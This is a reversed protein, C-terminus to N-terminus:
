LLRVFLSVFDSVRMFWCVYVEAEQKRGLMKMFGGGKRPQVDRTPGDAQGRTVPTCQAARHGSGRSAPAGSPLCSTGLSTLSPLSPLLSLVCKFGRRVSITTIPPTWRM